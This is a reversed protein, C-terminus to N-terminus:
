TIPRSDRNYEQVVGRRVGGVIEVEAGHQTGVQGERIRVQGFRVLCGANASKM